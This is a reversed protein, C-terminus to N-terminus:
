LITLLPAQSSTMLGAEAKVGAAAQIAPTTEPASDVLDSELMGVATREMTSCVLEQAMQSQDRFTLEMTMQLIKSM